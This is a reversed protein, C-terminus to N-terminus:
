TGARDRKRGVIVAVGSLMASALHMWLPAQGQQMAEMMPLDGTRPKPTQDETMKPICVLIAVVLVVGALVQVARFSRSIASCVYGGVAASIPTVLLALIIWLTTIRFTGPEFVREAGVLFWCVTMLTMMVAVFVIYGIVVGLIARAM